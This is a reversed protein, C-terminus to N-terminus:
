SWQIKRMFRNTRREVDLTTSPGHGPYVIYDGNLHGLKDISNKMDKPNGRFFDTRGCTRCFLTDGSFMLNGVLFCISGPTHGPTNIVKILHEGLALEDGEKVLMDAHMAHQEIGLDNALSHSTSYLCEDDEEGIVVIADPYEKKLDYVGLIHDSHGHTILIYKLSKMGSEKIANTLQPVYLAPDIVAGTGTFEDVIVYANTRLTGIEVKTVKM